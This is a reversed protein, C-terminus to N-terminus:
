AAAKLAAPNYRNRLCWIRHLSLFIELGDVLEDEAIKVFKAAPRDRDVFVIACCAHPLNLGRRYSALQLAHELYTTDKDSVNQKTKFDVIWQDSHLDVKGGYGLDCAFSKETRWQQEGCNERIVEIAAACIDIIDDAPTLGCFHSELGGHIYEGREAAARAQATAGERVRAMWAETTEGAIVPMTYAQLAFQDNIWRNLGPKDLLKLITTSSPFWGNAKADRVTTARERGNKGTVVYRTSGDPAYYHGFESAFTAMIM